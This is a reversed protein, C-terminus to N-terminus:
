PEIYTVELSINAPLFAVGDSDSHGDTHLDHYVIMLQARSRGADILAQLADVLPPSSYTISTTPAPYAAIFVGPRGFDGADLTGYDAARLELNGMFAPAGYLTGSSMRITASQVSTGALSSIDFSAFGKALTNDPLDGTSVFATTIPVPGDGVSGTEAGVVSLNVTHEETTTTPEETTTTQEETTTIEGETTTTTSRASTEESTTAEEVVESIGPVEIEIEVVVHVNPELDVTNTASYLEGAVMASAKFERNFGSPVTISLEREEVDLSRGFEEFGEGKIWLELSEVDEVEVGSPDIISVRVDVTSESPQKGLILTYAFYGSIVIVLVVIILVLSIVLGKRSSPKTEM